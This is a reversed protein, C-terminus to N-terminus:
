AGMQKRTFGVKCRVKLMDNLWDKPLLVNLVLAVATRLTDM